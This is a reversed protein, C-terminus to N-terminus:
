TTNMESVKWVSHCLGTIKWGSNGTEGHLPLFGQDGTCKMLAMLISLISAKCCIISLFFVNSKM